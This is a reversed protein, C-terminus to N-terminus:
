GRARRRIGGRVRPTSGREHWELPWRSWRAAGRPRPLRGRYGRAPQQRWQPGRMWPARVCRTAAAAVVPAPEHVAAAAWSRTAAGRAAAASQAAAAQCGARRRLRWTRPRARQLWQPPPPPLPPPPASSAQSAGVAEPNLRGGAAVSPQPCTRWSSTRQMQPGPVCGLCRGRARAMAAMQGGGATGDAATTAAAAGQKPTTKRADKMRRCAARRRHHPAGCRQRLSWPLQALTGHAEALQTCRHSSRVLPPQARPTRRAVPLPM